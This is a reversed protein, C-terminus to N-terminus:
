FAGFVSAIIVLVEDQTINERHKRIKASTFKPGFISFNFQQSCHPLIFSISVGETRSIIEFINM